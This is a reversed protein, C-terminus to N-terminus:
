TYVTVLTERWSGKVLAREGLFKELPFSINYSLIKRIYEKLDVEYKKKKKKKAYLHMPLM